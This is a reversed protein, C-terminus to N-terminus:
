PSAPRFIKAERDEASTPPPREGPEAAIEPRGPRHSRDRKGALAILRDMAQLDGTMMLSHAVVMADGLRAIQLGVVGVPPDVERKALREASMQRARRMAVNGVPAVNAASAGRTLRELIRPRRETPGDAAARSIKGAKAM